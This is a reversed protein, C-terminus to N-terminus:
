ATVLTWGAPVLARAAARAQSATAHQMFEGITHMRGNADCYRVTYRRSASPDCGRESTIFYGDGIVGDLIRSRFFRMTDQDFFHFGALRNARKIDTITKYMITQAGSTFAGPLADAVTYM